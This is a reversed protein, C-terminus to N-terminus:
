ETRKIESNTSDSFTNSWTLCTMKWNHGEVALAVTYNSQPTIQQFSWRQVAHPDGEARLIWASEGQAPSVDFQDLPRALGDGIAKIYAEKRTWCKFFAEYKQDTGLARLTANERKSFFREAIAEADPIAKLYELDIGVERHRTVAYVALGESNSLNFHLNDEDPSELVPKGHAGYRFQLRNPGGVLYGSLIIRLVGRRVIFRHRDQEFRFRDARKREDISLLQELRLLVWGPQDLWARWVHVDRESLVLDPLPTNWDCSPNVM